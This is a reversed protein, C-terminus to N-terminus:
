LSPTHAELGGEAELAALPAKRELLKAVLREYKPYARMTENGFREVTWRYFVYLYPDVVTLKTGVAHDGQLTLEVHELCQKVLETGKARIPDYLKEDDVFTNPRFVMKWAQGHFTGSIWNMWEYTRLVELDTDGLLKRDPLLQSIATMIAPLETIVQNDIMLVPVKKKPNISRFEEPIGEKASLKITDFALNSEYLIIHVALSCAGPGYWLTLRPSM